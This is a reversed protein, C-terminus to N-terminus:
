DAGTRSRVAEAVKHIHERWHAMHRSFRRESSQSGHGAQQECDQLASVAWLAVDLDDVDAASPDENAILTAKTNIWADMRDDLCREFAGPRDWAIGAATALSPGAITVLGAVAVARLARLHGCKGHLM